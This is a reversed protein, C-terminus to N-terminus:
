FRALAEFTALHKRVQHLTTGHHQAIRRLSQGEFFLERCTERVPPPLIDQHRALFIYQPKRMLKLLRTIRRQVRGPSQGILRAIEALKIGHQYVQEILARDPEPLHRALDLLRDVNARLNARRRPDDSRSVPESFPVTPM